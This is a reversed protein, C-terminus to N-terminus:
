YKKTERWGESGLWPKSPTWMGGGFCSRIAEWIKRAGKFIASITRNNAIVPVVNKGGNVHLAM